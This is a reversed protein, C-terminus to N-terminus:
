IQDLSEVTRYIDTTGAAYVIGMWLPGGALPEVLALHELWLDGKMSILYSHLGSIILLSKSSFILDTCGPVFSTTELAHVTHMVCFGMSTDQM